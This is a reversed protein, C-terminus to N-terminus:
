GHDLNLNLQGPKIDQRLWDFNSGPHGTRDRGDGPQTGRFSSCRSGATPQTVVSRARSRTPPPFPPARTLQTTGTARFLVRREPLPFTHTTSCRRGHDCRKDPVMFCPHQLRTSPRCLNQRSREVSRPREPPTAGPQRQRARVAVPGGVPPTCPSDGHAFISTNNAQSAFEVFQKTFLGPSCGPM